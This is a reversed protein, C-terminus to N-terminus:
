IFPEEIGMYQQLRSRLWREAPDSDTTKLWVMSLELAPTEFPIEEAYIGGINALAKAAYEPCIALLDTGALISPLYSFQPVSVVVRRERGIRKLWEDAVGRMKASHSVQVHPRACYEDLTLPSASHDARLVRGRITRLVRRRTNTPLEGTRTIGVTIEGSELMESIRLDNVPQIVVKVEPAEARLASLLTPLLGFEVDDSLGMRFTTQSLSPVFSCTQGLATSLEDLAPVLYSFIQEARSTPQMHEKVRVFLKDNFPERLRKLATSVTPQTMSLRQAARTVNRDLMLAEFIVMLRLDAKRLESRNM